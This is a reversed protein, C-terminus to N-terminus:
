VFMGVTKLLLSRSIPKNLYADCGLERCRQYSESSDDATLVVIPISAFRTDDKLRAIIESGDMDPLMLDVLVLAPSEREVAVLGDSGSRAAVVTCHDLHKLSRMVLDINNEDDEIYLIKRVNVV